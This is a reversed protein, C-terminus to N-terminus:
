QGRFQSNANEEAGVDTRLWLWSGLDRVVTRATARPAPVRSALTTTTATTTAALLTRTQVWRTRPILRFDRPLPKRGSVSRSFASGGANRGFGGTTTGQTNSPQNQTHAPSGFCDVRSPM